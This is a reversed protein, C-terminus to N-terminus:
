ATASATFSESSFRQANKSHGLWIFFRPLAKKKSRRASHQETDIKMRGRVSVEIIDRVRSGSEEVAQKYREIQWASGICITWLTTM